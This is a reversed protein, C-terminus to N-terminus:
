LALCRELFEMVAVRVKGQINAPLASLDYYVTKGKRWGNFETLRQPEVCTYGDVVQYLTPGQLLLATMLLLFRGITTIPSDASKLATSM